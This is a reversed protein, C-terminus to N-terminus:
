RKSVPQSLPQFANLQAALRALRRWSWLLSGLGILLGVIAPWSQDLLASLGVLSYPAVRALAIWRLGRWTNQVATDLTSRFWIPPLLAGFFTLAPLAFWLPRTDALEAPFRWGLVIVFLLTTVSPELRNVGIWRLALRRQPPLTPAPLLADLGSFFGWLMLGSFMVLMAAGLLEGAGFSSSSGGFGTQARAVGGQLVIGLLVIGALFALRTLMARAADSLDFAETWNSTPELRASPERHSEVRARNGALDAELYSARQIAPKVKTPFVTGLLHNTERNDLEHINEALGINFRELTVVGM